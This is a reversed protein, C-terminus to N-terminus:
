GTRAARKTFLIDREVALLCLVKGSLGHQSKLETVTGGDKQFHVMGTSGRSEEWLRPFVIVEPATPCCGSGRARRLTVRFSRVM